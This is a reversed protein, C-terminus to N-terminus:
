MLWVTGAGMSRSLLYFREGTNKSALVHLHILCYLRVKVCEYIPAIHHYSHAKRAPRKVGSSLFKPKWQYSGPDPV